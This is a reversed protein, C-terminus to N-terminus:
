KIKPIPLCLYEYGWFLDPDENEFITEEFLNLSPLILFFFSFYFISALQSILIYPQEVICAGLIGLFLVDTIFFWFFFQMVLIFKCSKTRFKGLIPLLFLILISFFMAVVGGLKNPIARLIAYFPLFYWEPIIHKPTVMSDARIYNDPHGLDNPFFFITFLSLLGIITFFGFFDKIIFQPFLRVSDNKGCM